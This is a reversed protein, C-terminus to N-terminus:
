RRPAHMGGPPLGPRRMPIREMREIHPPHEPRIMEMRAMGDDPQTNGRPPMSAAPAARQRPPKAVAQIREAILHRADTLRGSVVIRQGVALPGDLDVQTGASRDVAFGSIRLRLQEEGGAEQVVGEVVMREVRGAFPLSPQAQAVRVALREGDWDGRLLAEADMGPLPADARLPLGDLRLGGDVRALIGIASSDAQGPAYEIRTALIRGDPGHFGAVRLSMGFQLEALSSLGVLRTSDDVMVPQGMVRLLVGEGPAHTLPGELVNLLGIRQAVLRAEDGQTGLAEIVVVQGLALSEAMVPLGNRTVPTTDDYHVELGNVCVSAFGTVTGVIGTGGLGGDAQRGTGGLGGEALIGTGGIGGKALIGTGGIGGSALTPVAQEVCAAPNAQASRAGTGALLALLVLLLGQHFVSRFPATRSM